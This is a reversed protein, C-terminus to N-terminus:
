EIRAQFHQLNQTPRCFQRTYIRSFNSDFLFMKLSLAGFLNICGLRWCFKTCSYGEKVNKMINMIASEEILSPVLKSHSFPKNSNIVDRSKIEFLLNHVDM